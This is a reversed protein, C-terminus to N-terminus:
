EHPECYEGSPAGDLRRLVDAAVVEFRDVSERRQGLISESSELAAVFLWSERHQLRDAFVCSFTELERLLCRRKVTAVRLVKEGEGLLCLRVQDSHAAM